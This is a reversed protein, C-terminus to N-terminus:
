IEEGPKEVERIKIGKLYLMLKRKIVYEPTRMGKFDEVVKTWHETPGFFSDTVSVRKMYVFDAVYKVPHEDFAMRVKDKTKLHDIVQHEQRPVLTFEVQRQLDKILGEREADKLFQWRLWETKGDFKGEPTEIVKNGYKRRAYM